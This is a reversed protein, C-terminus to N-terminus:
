YNIIGNVEGKMFFWITIAIAIGLGLRSQWVKTPDTLAYYQWVSIGLALIPFFILLTKRANWPVKKSFAGESYLLWVTELPIGIILAVEYGYTPFYDSVICAIAFIVWVGLVGVGTSMREFSEEQENDIQGDDPVNPNQMDTNDETKNEEEEM